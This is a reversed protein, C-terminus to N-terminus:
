LCSRPTSSRDEWLVVAASHDSSLKLGPGRFKLDPARVVRYHQWQTVVVTSYLVYRSTLRKVIHRRRTWVWSITTRPKLFWSMSYAFFFLTYGSRIRRFREKDCRNYTINSTLIKHIPFHPKSIDLLATALTRQVATVNCVVHGGQARNLMSHEVTHRVNTRCKM